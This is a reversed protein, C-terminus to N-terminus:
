QPDEHIAFRCISVTFYNGTIANLIAGFSAWTCVTAIPERSAVTGVRIINDGDGNAGNKSCDIGAYRGYAARGRASM